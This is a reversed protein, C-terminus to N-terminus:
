RRMPTLTSCPVPATWTPSNFCCSAPPPGTERWCRTPTVVSWIPPAWRRSWSVVHDCHLSTGGPPVGPLVRGGGLRTSRGGRPRSSGEASFSPRGLNEPHGQMAELVTDAVAGAVAAMRTVFTQCHPRTAQDMRQSIAGVPCPSYATVQSKLLPLEGVLEELVVEFRAKAAAFAAERDGDAGIVLDIPGHQLHLRTGCPLIRAVPGM